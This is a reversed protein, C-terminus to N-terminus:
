SHPKTLLVWDGGRKYGPYGVLPLKARECYGVREYLARADVNESAVIIAMGRAAEARGLGDAHALLGTGIGEGRHEPYVALVNVYWAGPARAELRVLPQVIEHLEDIDRLDPSEDLRRCVTAGAVAGDLEAIHANRYSFPGDEAMIRTRGIEFPGQGAEAARTWFYTPLGEGAMDILAVLDTADRPTAARILVEPM